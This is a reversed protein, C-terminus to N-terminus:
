IMHYTDLFSNRTWKCFNHGRLLLIAKDHLNLFWHFPNNNSQNYPQWDYHNIGGEHIITQKSVCFPPHEAFINNLESGAVPTGWKCLNCLCSLTNIFYFLCLVYKCNSKGSVNFKANLDTSNRIASSNGLSFNNIVFFITAISRVIKWQSITRRNM